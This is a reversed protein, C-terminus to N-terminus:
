WGGVLCVCMGHVVGRNNFDAAAFHNIRAAVGSDFDVDLQVAAGDALTGRDALVEAGQEAFVECLVPGMFDDAQTILVRRGDLPEGISM